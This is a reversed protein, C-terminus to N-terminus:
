DSRKIAYFRVYDVVNTGNQMHEQVQAFIIFTGKMRSITFEVGEKIVNPSGRVFIEWMGPVTIGAQKVQLLLALGQARVYRIRCPFSKDVEWEIRNGAADCAEILVDPVVTEDALGTSTITVTGADWKNTTIKWRASSFVVDESTSVGGVDGSIRVTGNNYTGSGVDVRLYAGGSPISHSATMTAAAKGSFITSVRTEFTVRQTLPGPLM